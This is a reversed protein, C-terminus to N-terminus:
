DTRKCEKEVDYKLKDFDDYLRYEFQEWRQMRDYLRIAKDRQEGFYGNIIKRLIKLETLKKINKRLINM